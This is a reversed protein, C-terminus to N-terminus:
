KATVLHNKLISTDAKAVPLAEVGGNKGAM